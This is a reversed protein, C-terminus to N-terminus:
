AGRLANVVAAFFDNDNIVSPGSPKPRASWVVIAVGERPNLYISQGFIGEARFAGKHVPAADEGYTWWMYGYNVNKGGIVHSRGAEEFWGAPVVQEGGVRGGNLVFLAFRGYDRLRASFGSGGVELGDPSEMWWTADDEMGAKSWIKESLYEALPKKIAARLVAGIM